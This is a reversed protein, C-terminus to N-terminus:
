RILTVSTKYTHKENLSDTAEVVCFYVGPSAMAGLNTKGDWGITPDNWAFIKEGWRNYIEARFSNVGLAEITYEDNQNDGNPTFINPIKVTLQSGVIIQVTATDVCGQANAVALTVTYQGPNTYVTSTNENTSTGNSLDWFYTDAGTGTSQFNVSLPAYGTSPDAFIGAQLNITNVTISATDIGCSNQAYLFYTGAQSVSLTNGTDGTSWTLSGTGQGTLTISDGSCISTPNTNLILASPQQQASVTITDSASGCSSTVTAIYTGPSNVSISAGNLGNSWSITGAAQAFLTVSSGICITTDHQLISITPAASQGITISQQYNYCADSSQVTYTGPNSITYQAAAPGGVWQYSNGGGSATLTANQGVCITSIGNSSIQLPNQQQINILVSDKLTDACVGKVRFYLYFPTTQNAPITYSTNTTNPSSFSNGIGEWHMYTSSGIVTASLTVTGGPCGPAPSNGADISFPSIPATCGNNEYSAVGAQSFSVNAGDGSMLLARDYTAAETCGPITITLTQTGTGSNTFHGFPNVINQYLIYVTDSLGAFSNATTSMDWSTVLIVKKNPPLIGNLPELIYGCSTITANLQSTKQATNSNMLWSGAFPFNPWEAELDNVAIPNPGILIRVMENQGEPTGCANVLINEIELCNSTTQSYSHSILTASFVILIFAAKRM